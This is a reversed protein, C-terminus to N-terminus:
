APCQNQVSVLQSADAVLMRLRGGLTRQRRISVATLGPPGLLYWGGRAGCQNGLELHELDLNLFRFRM